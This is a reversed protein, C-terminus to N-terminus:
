ARAEAAFLDAEAGAPARQAGRGELVDMLSSARVYREGREGLVLIEVSGLQRSDVASCFLKLNLGAVQAAYAVPWLRYHPQQNTNM